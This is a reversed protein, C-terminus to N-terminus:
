EMLQYYKKKKWIVVNAWQLSFKRHSGQFTPNEASLFMGRVHSGFTSKMNGRCPDLNTGLLSPNCQTHFTVAGSLWPIWWVSCRITVADMLWQMQCDSCRESVPIYNELITTSDNSVLKIEEDKIFGKRKTKWFSGNTTPKIWDMYCILYMPLKLIPLLM